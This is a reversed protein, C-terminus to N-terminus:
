AKTTPKRIIRKPPVPTARLQPAARVVRRPAVSAMIGADRSQNSIRRIIRVATAQSENELDTVPDTYPSRQLAGMNPPTRQRPVEIVLNGEDDRLSGYDFPRDLSFGELEHVEGLNSGFGCDAVIPCKMTTGFWETIPNTEMYRKVTKLGWDLYEKKVYVVIADHIFGVIQLYELDIEEEMRGLAMVGLSSGFEQVPSNIGQRMAEQQIYEEESDVMPLHRIRGSYSRVFKHEAAFERMNKHWTALRNYKKFFGERVRKAEAETFIANYQTKAFVIFKRWGMGYLFGFNVSKAKQRAEKQETKPLLRFQEMTVGMVILATATHIDGAQRYIEIMTPDNAMSAAIRLEAQSLDLECVYYGEPAVFMKRYQKSKKSRKPYNQGNPDDSSTRGTVTRALSYMPRVKGGVVYKNQFGIVNTNLLREDKIYEALQFAFPCEEFFYPLHDKSSCSPEQKEKPLNKTTKTFVKPKLRFGDQHYFLIDKIFDKRGFSLAKEVDGKCMDIHKLKISRPVQEILENYQRSVEIEMFTQFEPLQHNVDINMGRTEMSSLANLGPIGIRCYNAWQRADAALEDELKTYLRFAADTDGCGYGRMMDISVEWMRSKDVTANFQDAYGAMEPVHIKTMVDLNKEPANEDLMAVMLLTDGGIRFRIGEKTRMAVNDFKTNHGVVIREEKCLLKRLQNRLRPKDTEPIPNEPHDWVLMYGTGAKTTFQMTLIQFRPNFNPNGKHLAEKYTRVDCGGKYWRLGTTETDFSLLEADEDILFQLDTVLKYDGHEISSSSADYDFNVYRAFSQVDAAFLPGNQPYAVVLGPSSLPFISAGFEDINHPLGRVKTIKTGRGFVQTSPAAGLPIIAAPEQEEIQDLMHERCHKHIATKQRGTLMDENYPCRCAPYFLFDEQAFGNGLMEGAFVKMAGPALLRGAKAGAMSPKDTVVMFRADPDGVPRVPTFEGEIICGACKTQDFAM